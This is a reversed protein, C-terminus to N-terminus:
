IHRHCTSPPSSLHVHIVPLYTMMLAAWNIWSSSAIDFEWRSLMKALRTSFWSHRSSRKSRIVLASRRLSGTRGMSSTNLSKFISAHLPADDKRTSGFFFQCAKLYSQAAFPVRLGHRPAYDTERM